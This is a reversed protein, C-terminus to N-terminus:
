QLYFIRDNITIQESIVLYEKQISLWYKFRHRPSYWTRITYLEMWPLVGLSDYSFSVLISTPFNSNFGFALQCDPHSKHEIINLYKKVCLWLVIDRHNTHNFINFVWFKCKRGRLLRRVNEFPLGGVRRWGRLSWAECCPPALPLSSSNCM